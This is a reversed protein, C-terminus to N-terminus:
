KDPFVFEITKELSEVLKEHGDLYDHIARYLMFM